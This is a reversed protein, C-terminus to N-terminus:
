QGLGALSVVAVSMLLATSGNRYYKRRAGDLRFGAKEYLMRAPLNDESVELCLRAIGREGAHRALARVLQRALGRRRQSPEVLLDHIDAHDPTMAASVMAVLRGSPDEIGLFLMEPRALAADWTDAVAPDSGCDAELEGLREGDGRRLIV